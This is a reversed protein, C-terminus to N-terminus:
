QYFFSLSIVKSAKNNVFDMATSLYIDDPDRKSHDGNLNGDTYLLVNVCFGPRRTKGSVRIEHCTSGPRKICGDPTAKATSHRLSPWETSPGCDTEVRDESEPVDTVDHDARLNGSGQTSGYPLNGRLQLEPQQDLRETFLLQFEILSGLKLAGM